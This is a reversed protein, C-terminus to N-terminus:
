LIGRADRPQHQGGFHGHGIQGFLLFFRGHAAVAMVVAHASHAAHHLGQLM